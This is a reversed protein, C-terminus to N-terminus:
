LIIWGNMYRIKRRIGVTDKGAHVFRMRPFVEDVTGIGNKLRNIDLLLEGQWRVNSKQIFLRPSQAEAMRTRTLCGCKAVISKRQKPSHGQILLPKAVGLRLQTVM